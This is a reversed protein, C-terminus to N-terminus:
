HWIRLTMRLLTVTHECDDKATVWQISTAVCKISGLPVIAPTLSSLAVDLLQVWAAQTLPLHIVVEVAQECIM